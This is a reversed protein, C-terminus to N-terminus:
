KNDTKPYYKRYWKCYGEGYSNKDDLGMYECDECIYGSM